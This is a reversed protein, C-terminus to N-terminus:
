ILVTLTRARTLANLAYARVQVANVGPPLSKSAVDEPNHLLLKFGTALRYVAASAADEASSGQSASPGDTAINAETAKRAQYAQFDKRATYGISIPKRCDFSSALM